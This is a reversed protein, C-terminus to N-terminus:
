TNFRQTTVEKKLEAKPGSETVFTMDSKKVGRM